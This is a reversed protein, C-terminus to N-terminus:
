GSLLGPRLKRSVRVDKVSSSSAKNCGPLTPYFSFCGRRRIGFFNRYFTFYVTFLNKSLVICPVTKKHEGHVGVTCFMYQIEDLISEFPPTGPPPDSFYSLEPRETWPHVALESKAAREMFERWRDNLCLKDPGVGSLFERWDEDVKFWFKDELCDDHSVLLVTPPAPLSPKTSNVNFKEDWREVFSKLAEGEFSQIVLPPLHYDYEKLRKTDCLNQIIAKEWLEENDNIHQFLLQVLDDGTDELLWPYDKLEAYVGRKARIHTPKIRVPEIETNWEGILQLISTLTPIQFMGDFETTRAEPLRQRIRLTKIEEDTFEYSWYGTRNMYTSFTLRDPFKTAVDTTINLDMSHVAILTGNKTAVLDPEIYDAKMELALRYGQLSHEPLHASAGRHAIVVKRGHATPNITSPLIIPPAICTSNPNEIDQSAVQNAQLLYVCVLFCFAIVM